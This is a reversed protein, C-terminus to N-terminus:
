PETLSGSQFISVEYNDPQWRELAYRFVPISCAWVTSAAFLALFAPVVGRFTRRFDM